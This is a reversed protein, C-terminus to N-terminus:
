MKKMYTKSQGKIRCYGTKKKYTTKLWGGSVEQGVLVTGKPLVELVQSELNPLKRFNLSSLTMYTGAEVGLTKLVGRAIAEGFIKQEAVSDVIKIDKTDIFACEVLVAPAKTMRIIGFYDQGNSNKRTKLGRSNQGIKKVETEINKALTKSVGGVVSHFVEFGDGGGANIHIEVVLDAGWRNAENARNNLGPDIDTERSMKTIVGASKLYDRTFKAINLNLDKEKFGNGVAGSDAGGHGPCLYVKMNKVDKFKKLTLSM